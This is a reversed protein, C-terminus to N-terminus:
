WVGCKSVLCRLLRLVQGTLLLRSVLGIALQPVTGHPARLLVQMRVHHARLVAVLEVLRLRELLRLQAVVVATELELLLNVVHRVLSYILCTDVLTM